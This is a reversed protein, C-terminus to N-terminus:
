RGDPVENLCAHEGFYKKAAVNYARAADEASRFSGIHIYKYNLSISAQFTNERKKFSVGKYKVTKNLNRKRRNHQNQSPSVVRLNEIRNDDRIGNIHDILHGKPIDGNHMIWIIRHVKYCKYNFGVVIYGDKVKATIDHKKRGRGLSKWLLRGDCYKFLSNAMDKSLDAM